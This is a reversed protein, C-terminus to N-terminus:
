SSIKQKLKEASDSDLGQIVRLLYDVQNNRDLELLRIAAEYYAKGAENWKGQSYYVNGLEGYVDPNDDEADALKLYINEAALVNGMWYSQRAMYFMQKADETLHVNRKDGTHEAVKDVPVTNEASSKTAEINVIEQKKDSSQLAADVSSKGAEFLEDVKNNLANVTETLQALLDLEATTNGSDVVVEEIVIDEAIKKNILSETEENPVSDSVVNNVSVPEDPIVDVTSESDIVDGNNCLENNVGSSQVPDDLQVEVTNTNVYVPISIALEKEIYRQATDVTQNINPLFIVNRFYILSLIVLLFFLIKLPRLLFRILKM